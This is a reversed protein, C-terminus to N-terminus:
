NSRREVRKNCDLVNVYVSDGLKLSADASIPVTLWVSNKTPRYTITAYRSPLTSQFKKCEEALKDTFVSGEGVATVTGKRWGDYWSFRPGESTNACGSLLALGIVVAASFQANMELKM